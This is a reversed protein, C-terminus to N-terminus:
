AAKQQPEHKTRIYTAQERWGWDGLRSEIKDVVQEIRGLRSQLANIQVELTRAQPERSSQASGEPKGSRPSLAQNLAEQLDDRVNGASRSRGPQPLQHGWQALLTAVERQLDSLDTQAAQLAKEALSGFYPTDM